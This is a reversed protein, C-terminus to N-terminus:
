ISNMTQILSFLHLELILNFILEKEFLFKICIKVNEDEVVRQKKKKGRHKLPKVTFTKKQGHNFIGLYKM